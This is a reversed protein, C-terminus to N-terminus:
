GNISTFLMEATRRKDIKDTQTKFFKNAFYVHKPTQYVSVAKRIEELLKQEAFNKGTKEVILILKQGLKEDPQYWCYFTAKYNLEYFVKAIQEDVRDLIIKVGGSNIVNDIRGLWKFASEGTLEILDNTQIKEFNTMPGSVYLCGRSDIGANVEPLFSYEDKIDSGNLRKLAVHSVTETMGYSQYVPNDMTSIKEALAIGVPAGGLLIKGFSNVRGFTQNDKLAATLQMPVLATFDFQKSEGLVLLPNSVPEVITLDWNLEMGRVLMMLGAVYEVNLAVLAKTGPRLDLAKGTMAASSSLQKRTVRIIKPTGTSGSTQLEFQEKGSLWLQIFDFAKAFYPQLPRSQKQLLEKNTYWNSDFASEEQKM